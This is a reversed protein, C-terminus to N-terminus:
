NQKLFYGTLEEWEEELSYVPFPKSAKGYWYRANFEDGEKRHLYAHVWAGDESGDDQAIKHAGDWDDYYDKLLAIILPQNIKNVAEDPQLSKFEEITM